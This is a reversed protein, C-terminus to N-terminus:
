PASYGHPSPEPRLDGLAKLSKELNKTSESWYGRVPYKGNENLLLSVL